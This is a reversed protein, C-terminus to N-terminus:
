RRKTKFKTQKRNVLMVNFPVKLHTRYLQSRVKEPQRKRSQRTLFCYLQFTLLPHHAYTVYFNINVVMTFTFALRVENLTNM